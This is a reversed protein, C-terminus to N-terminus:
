GKLYKRYYKDIASLWPQLHDGNGHADLELPMNSVERHNDMAAKIWERVVNYREVDSLNSIKNIQNYFCIFHHKYLQPQNFTPEINSALVSDAYSTPEYIKSWLVAEEEMIEHASNFQVWNLLGPLYIRAKPGRRDEESQIFKDLSFMRTNEFTGFSLTIDNVLSYLLSETNTHGVILDLDVNRLAVMFDMYANLFTASQIQKTSRENSVLVYVGSLEPFQTVWNLLKTCFGEDEIMHSTLALTIYIPVDVGSEDIAKLFPLVSYEEQQNFYNTALQDIYRTPIIIKEFQQQKQFEICQRASELAYLTFDVTSFSGSIIEPFFPYTSLKKKQSNPLYYQPDFISSQKIDDNISEIKEKKQHVPSFILGDGCDDKTFSDINWKDNHGVQHYIKIAMM